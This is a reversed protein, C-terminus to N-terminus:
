QRIFKNQVQCGFMPVMLFVMPKSPLSQAEKVLKVYNEVWLDRSFNNMMSDMGGFGMFVFQPLSKKMQEYRCTAQYSYDSEADFDDPWFKRNYTHGPMANVAKTAYNM